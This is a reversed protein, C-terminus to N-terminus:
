AHFAERLLDPDDEGPVFQLVIGEKGVFLVHGAVACADDLNHEVLLIAMGNERQMMQINEIVVNATQVDLDSLIEDALLLDPSQVIARAIAVRRREGGSLKRPRASEKGALGVQAIATRAAAISDPPFRATLTRIPSMSSLTGMLVNRLVTANNVLGLNQPIYGVRGNAPRNPLPIGLVEAEGGLPPLIGMLIKLLTTKGCGSRGVIAVTNGAELTLNLGSVLPEAPAYGVVLDKTRICSHVAASM